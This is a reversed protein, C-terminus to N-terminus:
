DNNIVGYFKITNNDINLTRTAYNCAISYFDRFEKSYYFELDKDNINMKPDKLQAVLVSGNVLINEKPIRVVRPYYTLTPILFLNQKNSKLFDFFKIEKAENLSIYKDYNKIHVFKPENFDINKSRVVWISNETKETLISNSIEYNKYIQFIDKKMKLYVDDFVKSRYIIWYPLKNDFIYKKNQEMLINKPVSLIKINKNNCCDSIKIAITEIKVDPFGLEGFDVINTINKTEMFKRFNKYSPSSLLLKPSIMIVNKSMLLSKKWFLEFLNNCKSYNVDDKDLKKFPPNGIILDFNGYVKKDNLFDSNIIKIVFNKPIEMKRIAQKLNVLTKPDIDILTLYVKEYSDYKKIIPSIFNGVGVSPELISIAKKNFDPLLEYIETLNIKSTYFAANEYRLSNNSEIKRSFKYLENKPSLYKKINEAIRILVGTPVAEGICERINNENKHLWSIIEEKTMNKFNVKDWRFSKPISMMDMLEAISFVRDDKPHITNQSALCGNATHVCLACKNWIQRKYKDGFIKKVFVEKGNKIRHPIKSPDTNDMASEGEKLDHIWPRMELGYKKFHHLPNAPDFDDMNKLSPYKGIIQKLTKSKSFNPFLEFPALFKVYDKRVGIVLTRTRSSNSGYDKFNLVNSLYCYSSGLEDNIEESIMHTKGAIGLCTTKLFSPVNEFIFIKPNIEKILKIANVVLSNRPLENNKKQNAVSMGQCPPTAIIVDVDKIHKKTQWMQIEKFVKSSIEPKTIDGCIYGSKYLCKNNIKQINLRKELLECTAICDFGSQKFAYCGIGASSFLSIYNLKNQM